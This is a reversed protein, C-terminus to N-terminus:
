IGEFLISKDIENFCQTEPDWKYAFVDNGFPRPICAFVTGLPVNLFPMKEISIDMFYSLLTRSVANHSILLVSKNIRELEIIIHQLRHVVDLYSEGNTGPYRTQLKDKTRTAFDTPFLEKIESYKMGECLGSYLENLASYKKIKVNSSRFFHATEVTRTLMSTWIEFNNNLLELPKDQIDGNTVQSSLNLSSSIPSSKLKSESVHSYFAPQHNSIFNALAKSYEVGLESLSANGGIRKAINDTSQGHRTIYIVRPYLNMNTLYFTCQSELFGNINSLIIKSGVNILKCYQIKRSEEYDGLPEYCDEYSKLRLRFDNLATEPDVGTYDPSFLKMQINSDILSPNDCISEIFLLSVNQEKMIRNIIKKRRLITSNTADHIAVQGDGKLWLIADDLVEMAVNERLSAAAENSNDFFSSSHLIKSSSDKNQNSQVGNTVPTETSTLVRRKNGVNFIKVHIGLWSLYRKLKKVIYSKGRAPLGVMAVVLKVHSDATLLGELYDFSNRAKSFCPELSHNNLESAQITGPPHLLTSPTHQPVAPIM